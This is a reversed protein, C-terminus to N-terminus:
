LGRFLFIVQMTTNLSLSNPPHTLAERLEQQFTVDSRKFGPTNVNAVNDSIVQHRLSAANLAKKLITLTLFQFILSSRILGEKKLQQIIETSGWGSEIIFKKIQPSEPIVLNLNYVYLFWGFLIIIIAGLILKRNKRKKKALFM